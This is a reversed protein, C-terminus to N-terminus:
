RDFTVATVLFPAAHKALFEERSLRHNAEYFARFSNADSAEPAWAKGDFQQTVDGSVAAALPSSEEAPPDPTTEIALEFLAESLALVTEDPLTKLRAVDLVPAKTIAESEGGRLLAELAEKPVGALKALAAKI